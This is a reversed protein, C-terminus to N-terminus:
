LIFISMQFWHMMYVDPNMVLEVSLLENKIFDFVEKGQKDLWSPARIEDTNMKLKEEVEARKKM